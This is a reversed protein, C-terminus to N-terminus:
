EKVKPIERVTVYKKRWEKEHEIRRKMRAILGDNQIIKEFMNDRKEPSSIYIKSAESKDNISLYCEFRVAEVISSLHNWEVGRNRAELEEAIGDLPSTVAARLIRIMSIIRRSEETLNWPESIKIDKWLINPFWGNSMIQNDIDSVFKKERETPERVEIEVVNSEFWTSLESSQDRKLSVAQLNWFGIEPMKCYRCSKKSSPFLQHIDFTLTISSGHELNVTPYIYPRNHPDGQMFSKNDLKGIRVESGDSRTFLLQFYMGGRYGSGLDLYPIRSDACDKGSVKITLIAPYSCVIVDPAILELRCDSKQNCNHGTQIADTIESDLSAAPIL